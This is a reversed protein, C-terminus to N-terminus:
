IRLGVLLVVSASSASELGRRFLLLLVKFLQILLVRGVMLLLRVLCAGSGIQM